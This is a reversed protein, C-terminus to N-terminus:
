GRATVYLAILAILVQLIQLIVAAVACKVLILDSKEKNLVNRKTAKGLM